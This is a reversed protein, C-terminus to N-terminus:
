ELGAADPSVETDSPGEEGTEAETAPPAQAPPEVPASVNVRMWSSRGDRTVRVSFGTAGRVKNLAAKAEDVSGVADRNVRTIIDGDRFGLREVSKPVLGKSGAVTVADSGDQAKRVKLIAVLEPLAKALEAKTLGPPRLSTGVHAPVTHEPEGPKTPLVPKSTEEPPPAEAPPAAELAKEAKERKEKEQALQKDLNQRAKTAEELDKQTQSLAMRARDSQEEAVRRAEAAQELAHRFEVGQREAAIRARHETDRARAAEDREQATRLFAFIGLCVIVAAAAIAGAIVPRHAPGPAALPAEAAKASPAGSARELDQVLQKCSPHRATPEKHMARECVAALELPANPEISLIPEPKGKIIQAVVAQADPGSFPARGTLLEYLIAGLAYIDSRADVKEMHGLALEPPLYAPDGLLEACAAEEPPSEERGSRMADVTKEIVEAQGDEHGRARALRRDTVLTEGFEGLLVNAPQINRLVLSRNHAYGVVRCLDVFSPLLELREALSGSQELADRLTKGRVTAEARLDLEKDM